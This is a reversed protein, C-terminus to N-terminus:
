SVRHFAADVHEVFTGLRQATGRSVQEEVEMLVWPVANTGNNVGVTPLYMSVKDGPEVSWNAIRFRGEWLDFKRQELLAAGVNRLAGADAVESEKTVMTRRGYANTSNTDQVTVNVPDAADAEPDDDGAVIIQNRPDVTPQITFQHGVDDETFFVTATLDTNGRPQVVLKKTIGASDTTGAHEVWWVWDPLFRQVIENTFSALSDFGVRYEEDHTLAHDVVGGTERLVQPWAITWLTKIMDTYKTGSPRTFPVIEHWAAGHSLDVVRPHINFSGPAEVQIRPRDIFGGFVKRQGDVTVVVECERGTRLLDRQAISADNVRFSAEGSGPRRRLRIDSANGITNWASGDYVRVLTEVAM